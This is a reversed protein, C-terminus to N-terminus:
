SNFTLKSTKLLIFFLNTKSMKTTNKLLYHQIFQHRFETYNQVCLSSYIECHLYLVSQTIVKNIEAFLM